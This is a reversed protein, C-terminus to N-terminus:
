GTSPMRRYLGAVVIGGSLAFNVLYGSSYPNLFEGGAAAELAGFYAAFFGAFLTLLNLTGEGIAILPELSPRKWGVVGLGLCVPYYGYHLVPLGELAATRINWGLLLDLLLFLPAALYYASITRKVDPNEASGGVVAAM